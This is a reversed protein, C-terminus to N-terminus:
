QWVPCWSARPEGATSVMFACGGVQASSSARLWSSFSCCSWIFCFCFCPESHSSAAVDATSQRWISSVSLASCCCSCSAQWSICGLCAPQLLRGFVAKVVYSLVAYRCSGNLIGGHQPAYWGCGLLVCPLPRGYRVAAHGFCRPLELEVQM